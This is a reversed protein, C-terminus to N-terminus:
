PLPSRTFSVSFIRLRIGRESQPSHFPVGAFLLYGMGSRECAALALPRAFASSLRPLRDCRSYLLMTLLASLIRFPRAVRRLVLFAFGM